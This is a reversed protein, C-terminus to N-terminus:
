IKSRNDAEFDLEQELHLSHKILLLTSETENDPDAKMVRENM